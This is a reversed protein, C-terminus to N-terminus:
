SLTLRNFWENVEEFSKMTESKKNRYNLEPHNSYMEILVRRIISDLKKSTQPLVDHTKQKIESGHIYDSRIGYISVVERFLDFREEKDKAIFAATREAVKHTNEGKVAFLSELISIYSAIKSPLFDTRRATDLFYYARQFSPINLSIYSSVNTLRESLDVKSRELKANFKDLREFWKMAEEIEAVSYDTNTYNSQSDSYYVNRRLSVPEIKANSSITAFHPTVSNDKIFWLANSFTQCNVYHNNVRIYRRNDDTISEERVDLCVHSSMLNDVEELGFRFGYNYSMAIEVIVPEQYVIHFLHVGESALAIIDNYDKVRFNRLSCALLDM